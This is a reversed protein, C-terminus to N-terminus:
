LVLGRWKAADRGDDGWLEEVTAGLCEAVILAVAVSPVGIGAVWRQVTTRGVCSAAAVEEMTKGSDAIAKALRYNRAM